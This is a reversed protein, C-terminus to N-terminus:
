QNSPTEKQAALRRLNQIFDPDVLCRSGTCQSVENLTEKEEHTLLENIDIEAQAGSAAIDLIRRAIGPDLWVSGLRVTTIATEITAPFKDKLVYGDAGAAFASFIILENTCATLMLIKTDSHKQHIIRAAEIGNMVPMDIDMLVLDPKLRDCLEIAEQGNRAEGVCTAYNGHSLIIKITDRILSMDDVILISIPASMM